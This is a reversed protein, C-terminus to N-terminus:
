LLWQRKLRVLAKPPISYYRIIRVPNSISSLDLNLEAISAPRTGIVYYNDITSSYTSWCLAGALSPDIPTFFSNSIEGYTSSYNLTLVGKAGADTLLLGNKGVLTMSFPLIANNPTVKIPSSSLTTTQYNSLLYFLLYGQETENLGKIAIILALNDASFLIQSM